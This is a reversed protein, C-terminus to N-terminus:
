RMSFWRPVESAYRSWDEGFTRALWPEEGLIVRLHFAVAVVVAYLLISWSRFGLAWAAIILLVGVYMPNRTYRYLGNRVLKRPPDWPALTGRGEVFFDYVCWGLVVIGAIVIPTAYIAFSAGQPRLLLLPVAFAVIGPLVLFAISARLVLVDPM